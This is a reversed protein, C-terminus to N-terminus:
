RLHFNSNTEFIKHITTALFFKFRSLLISGFSVLYLELLFVALIEARQYNLYIHTSLQHFRLVFILIILSNIIQINEM